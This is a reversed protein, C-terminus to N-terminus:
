CKEDQYLTEAAWKSHSENFEAQVTIRERNKYFSLIQQTFYEFNRRQHKQLNRVRTKVFPMWFTPLLCQILM